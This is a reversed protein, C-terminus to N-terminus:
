RNINRCCSGGGKMTRRGVASQGERWDVGTDNMEREREKGGEEALLGMSPQWM